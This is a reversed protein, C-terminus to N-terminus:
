NPDGAVWAAIADVEPQTVVVKTPIQNRGLVLSIAAEAYRESPIEDWASTSTAAPLEEPRWPADNPLGLAALYDPRLTRHGACRFEVHHAWEHILAGQLMARTGPVHVTVTASVPDYAARSALDRSASLLVDGACVVRPGFVALFQDWTELAVVGLDAGVSEDFLLRPSGRPAADGALVLAFVVLWAGLMGHRVLARGAKM